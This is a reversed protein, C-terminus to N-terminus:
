RALVLRGKERKRASRLEYFYVGSFLGEGNFCFSNAGALYFQKSIKKLGRGLPGGVSFEV